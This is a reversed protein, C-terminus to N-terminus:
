GLRGYVVQHIPGVAEIKLHELGSKCLQEYIEEPEFAACLSNFFDRKLVEPENASLEEVIKEAAEVSAPRQLDAIFIAGGSPTFTRVTDWLVQPDHLHHLLSHSMVLQYPFRPISPSPITALHMTVRRLLDADKEIESNAIDLMARSGDVGIFGAEPFARVFRFLVDGSGSGLDLVKKDLKVGPFCQKFIEVRRGHSESFNAYHYASAQALDEMLEPELIRKM